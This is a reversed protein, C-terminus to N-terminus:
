NDFSRVHGLFKFGTMQRIPYEYMEVRRAEGDYVLDLGAAELFRIGFLAGLDRLGATGVEAVEGKLLKKYRPDHEPVFEVRPRWLRLEELSELSLPGGRLGEVLWRPKMLSGIEQTPFLPARSM